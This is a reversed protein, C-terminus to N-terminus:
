YEARAMLPANLDVAETGMSSVWTSRL